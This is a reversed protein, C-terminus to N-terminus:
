MNMEKRGEVTIIYLEQSAEQNKCTGTERFAWSYKASTNSFQDPGM